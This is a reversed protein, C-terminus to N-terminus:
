LAVQGHRANTSAAQHPATSFPSTVSHLTPARMTDDNITRPLSQWKSTIGLGEFVIDCGPNGCVPLGLLHKQTPQVIGAVIFAMMDSGRNSQRCKMMEKRQAQADSADAPGEVMGTDAPYRLHVHFPHVTCAKTSGSPAAAILYPLMQYMSLDRFDGDASGCSAARTGHKGGGNGYRVHFCGAFVRVTDGPVKSTKCWDQRRGPRRREGARSHFHSKAGHLATTKDIILKDPEIATPFPLQEGLDPDFRYVALTACGEQPTSNSGFPNAPRTQSPHSIARSHQISARQPSTPAQPKTPKISAAECSASEFDFWSEMDASNSMTILLTYAPIPDDCHPYQIRITQSAVRNLDAVVGHGFLGFCEHLVRRTACVCGKSHGTQQLGDMNKMRSYTMSLHSKTDWIGLGFLNMTPKVSCPGNRRADEFADNTLIALDPLFSPLFIGAYTGILFAPKGYPTDRQPRLRGRLLSLKPSSDIAHQLLTNRADAVAVQLATVYDLTLLAGFDVGDGCELRRFVHALDGAWSAPGDRALAIAERLACAALSDPPREVLYRMKCSLCPTRLTTPLQSVPMRWNGARRPTQCLGM